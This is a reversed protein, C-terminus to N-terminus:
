IIWPWIPTLFWMKRLVKLYFHQIPIPTGGNYDDRREAEYHGQGWNSRPHGQLSRTEFKTHKFNRSWKQIDFTGGSCFLWNCSTQAVKVCSTIPPWLTQMSSHQYYSSISLDTPTPLQVVTNSKENEGSPCQGWNSKPHGQLSRKKFNM